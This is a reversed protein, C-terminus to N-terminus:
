AVFETFAPCVPACAYQEPLRPQHIADPMANVNKMKPPFPGFACYCWPSPHRSHHLLKIAIKDTDLDLILEAVTQLARFVNGHWLFWKIREEGLEKDMRKGIAHVNNRVTAANITKGLPLVDQLIDVTSGYSMLSALKTELYEAVNELFVHHLADAAHVIYILRDGADSSSSTHHQGIVRQM